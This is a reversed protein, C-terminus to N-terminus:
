SFKARLAGIVPFGGVAEATVGHCHVGPDCLLLTPGTVSKNMMRDPSVNVVDFTEKRVKELEVAALVLNESIGAFKPLPSGLFTIQDCFRLVVPSRYRAHVM